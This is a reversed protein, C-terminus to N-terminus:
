TKSQFSNSATEIHSNKPHTGGGKKNANCGQVCNSELFSRTHYSNVHHLVHACVWGFGHGSQAAHETLGANEPIEFINKPLTDRYHEKLRTSLSAENTWYIQICMGWM